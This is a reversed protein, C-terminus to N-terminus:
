GGLFNYSIVDLYVGGNVYVFFFILFAGIGTSVIIRMNRNYGELIIPFVFCVYPIFYYAMRALIVQHIVPIILFFIIFVGM